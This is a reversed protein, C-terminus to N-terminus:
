LHDVWIVDCDPIIEVDDDDPWFQKSFQSYVVSQVAVTHGMLRALSERKEMPMQEEIVFKAIYMKRLDMPTLGLDTKFLKTFQDSKLNGYLYECRTEEWYDRLIEM